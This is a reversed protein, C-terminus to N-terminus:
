RDRWASAAAILELAPARGPQVALAAVAERRAGSRDGRRLLIHGLRVRIDGDEADFALARRYVDEARDWEGTQEYAAGLDAMVEVDDPRLDLCRELAPVDHVAVHSCDITPEAPRMRDGLTRVFGFFILLLAAPWIVSRWRTLM